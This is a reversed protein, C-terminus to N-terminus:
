YQVADVCRMTVDYVYDLIAENIQVDYVLFFESLDKYFPHVDELRTIIADIKVRKTDVPL